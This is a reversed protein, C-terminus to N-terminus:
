ALIGGDIIFPSGSVFAAEDSALFIAAAAIEAPSGLRGMPQRAVLAARAQGPDDAEGLLRGVWPSDVTGPALACCRIGDRAYQVAIQRTLSLVAGKSASYSARDVLGKLAAVSATNIIVGGGAALMHPIAARCGYVVGMVNVALICQWEEDTSDVVSTTSGIGANNCLVDLSGTAVAQGVLDEVQARDTVDTRVAVAQAPIATVDLDAALVHAGRALFGRVMDLGIGSGAGTVVVTKGAFATM